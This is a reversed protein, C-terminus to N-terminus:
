PCLEFKVFFSLSARARVTWCGLRKPHSGEVPNLASPTRVQKEFDSIVSDHLSDFSDGNSASKKKEHKPPAEIWHKSLGFDCIKLQPPKSDTNILVNTLKLDRPLLCSM